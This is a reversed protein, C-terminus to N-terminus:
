NREKKRNMLSEATNLDEPRDVDMLEAASEAEVLEVADSYKKLLQRGGEDGELTKLSEFCYSPFLVPGSPVKEFSLRLIKERNESFVQVMRMLSSASVLPQDGSLFLCGDWNEDAAQLGARVSESKLGGEYLVCPIQRDECIRAVEPWRTVVLTALRVDQMKSEIMKELQRVQDMVLCIMPQGNMPALLKNAEGFRVSRGAAMLMCGILMRDKKM